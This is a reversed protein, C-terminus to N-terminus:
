PKVKRPRGRPKKGPKAPKKAWESLKAKSYKKARAKGGKRGLESLLLSLIKKDIGSM